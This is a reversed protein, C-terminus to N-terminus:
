ICDFGLRDALKAESLKEAYLTEPGEKPEGIRMHSLFITFDM